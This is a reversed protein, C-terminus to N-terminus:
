RRIGDILPVYQDPNEADAREVHVLDPLPRDPGGQPHKPFSVLLGAARLLKYHEKAQLWNVLEDADKPLGPSSWIERMLQRLHERPGTFSFPLAKPNERLPADVLINLCSIIAIRRDTEPDPSALHPKAPNEEESYDAKVFGEQKIEFGSCWRM